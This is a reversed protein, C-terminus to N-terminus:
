AERRMFGARLDALDFGCDEAELARQNELFILFFVKVM